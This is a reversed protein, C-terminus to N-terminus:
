GPDSSGATMSTLPLVSVEFQISRHGPPISGFTSKRGDTGLALADHPERRVFGRNRTSPLHVQDIPSSRPSFEVIGRSRDEVPQDGIFALAKSFQSRAIPVTMITLIPFNRLVSNPERRGPRPLPELHEQRCRICEDSGALEHTFSTTIIEEGISSARRFSVGTRGM